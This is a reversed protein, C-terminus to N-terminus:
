VPKCIELVNLMLEQHKEVEAPYNPDTPDPLSNPDNVMKYVSQIIEANSKQRELQKEKKVIIAEIAKKKEVVLGIDKAVSTAKDHLTKTYVVVDNVDAVRQQFIQDITGSYEKKKLAEEKEPLAKVMTEVELKRIEIDNADVPETVEASYAFAFAWVFVATFIPILHYHKM